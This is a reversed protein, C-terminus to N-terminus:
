DRIAFYDAGVVLAVEKQKAEVRLRRCFAALADLKARDDLDAPDVWCHVPVPEVEVVLGGRVDDRWTGKVGSYAVAGGFLRGFLKLAGDVWPRPDLRTVGDAEVSPIVLVILVRSLPAGLVDHRLTM